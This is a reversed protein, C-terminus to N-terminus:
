SCIGDLAMDCLANIKTTYETTEDDRLDGNYVEHMSKRWEEIEERTLVVFKPIGRLGRAKIKNLASRFDQVTQEFQPTYQNPPKMSFAIKEVRDAFADFLNELEVLLYLAREDSM